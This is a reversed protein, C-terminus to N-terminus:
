ASRKRQWARRSDPPSAPPFRLIEEKNVEKEDEDGDPNSSEQRWIESLSRSQDVGAVAHPYDAQSECQFASAVPQEYPIRENDTAVQEDAAPEPMEQDEDRRNRTIWALYAPLIILSSVLSCSMGITLVRGLSQLGRHVALMLVAFGVMTTLTNLIVAVATSPSMRYRGLQRRFDYVINIGNDMGMGLMLPLSIMNAANFPIKLFGMIGILQLMCLVLPLVALYTDRLNGLNLFMVPLITCLAFWAAQEYSRKMQLSAEYIQIPNGTVKKDVSRVQRVFQEMASMDWIDGRSYIKMLHKGTPSVFRAVLSEPLDSLQPPEPNAVSRLAYLRTLIDNAMAQQFGALRAYCEAQPLKQMLAGIQQMRQHIHDSNAHGLPMAQAAAFMRGLEDMSALPIQPVQGPLNTLNCSIQEIVPRKTAIASASMSDDRVLISDIEIINKVSPLQLFQKKRALLTQADDAISIAFSASQDGETLIKQELAVSELGEAQMHLLNHDYWVSRMGLALLVTGAVSWILVGRPFAYVPELWRHFELPQPLVRYQYRDSLYIMAPLVTMAALCCLMVGGGAVIGLEAVGVFETFGAMYFSVATAIMGVVIGPAVTGSTELLAEEVSRKAERLQLYRAVIYIGYNIGLGTLIAGFASSLINLHGVTLVTYGLSWIMGLFLAAMPLMSHRLGGFGLLVVLVVGLMSLVTAVAMSSESSAMEDHEIIPLGTLGILMEPHQARARDVIRRLVNVADNNGTFSEKPAPALKLQIFGMRGQKALLYQAAPQDRGIQDAMDPWPSQYRGPESLAVQLSDFFGAIGKEIAQKQAQSQPDQGGIAPLYQLTKGMEAAMNGLNMQAWNGGILPSFKDIFQEIGALEEPKLYYLGKSRIKALDIKHLVTNWLRTERLLDAALEDIAPVVKDQSTGEVVVVVDETAGFEKTYEVWLRNFNSKPSLLDARSTRFGLRTQTLYLSVAAAMVGIVVTALPFRLCLWTVGVLLRGLLSINEHPTGEAPM